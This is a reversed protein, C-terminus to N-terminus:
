EFELDRPELVARFIAIVHKVNEAFSSYQILFNEILSSYSFGYQNLLSLICLSIRRSIKNEARVQQYSLRHKSMKVM